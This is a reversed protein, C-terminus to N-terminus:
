RRAIWIPFTNDHVGKYKMRHCELCLVLLNRIDDPTEIPTTPDLATFGHPDIKRLTDLVRDHDLSNWLAWEHIHHVELKEQSECIWCPLKMDDILKKRNQHFLESTSRKVHESYDILMTITKKQIHKKITNKIKHIITKM